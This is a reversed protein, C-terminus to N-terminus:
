WCDRWKSVPSDMGGAWRRREKAEGIAVQAWYVALAGNLPLFIWLKPCFGLGLGLLTKTGTMQDCPKNKGQPAGPSDGKRWLSFPFGSFAQDSSREM